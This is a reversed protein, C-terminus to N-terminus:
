IREYLKEDNDEKTNMFAMTAISPLVLLLPYGYRVDAVLPVALLLTMVLFLIPIGAICASYNGNRYAIVMLLIFLWWVAGMSYLIGYIPFITYLKTLIEHMKIVISGKLIPQAELDKNETIGFNVVQGPDMPYWYGKTLDIFADAYEGPYKIGLSIWLKLYEVINDRLYEQNGYTVWAFMPDAGHKQYNERVYSIINIKEILEVEGETLDCDDAIVRGIQQLPVCLKYALQGPEVAVASMVPGKVVFCFALIILTGPVMQRWKKRMFWLAFPWTALFAYFGNHRLMCMFFGSVVYLVLDRRVINRNNRVELHMRFLTIVLILVSMSFLIDKWITVAYILNYPYVAFIVVGTICYKRKLGLEYLTSWVYGISISVLSMQAVTYCSIAIYKSGSILYGIDYFLKFIMTHLWPHHDSYGNIGVAQRYQSLSDPTMIAPYNSLWLPIMCLFLMGSILFFQRYSFKKAEEFLRIKVSRVLIWAVCRYFLCFLGVVTCGYYFVLFLRNTLGGALAEKNGLVYCLTFIGACVTAIISDKKSQVPPLKKLIFCAVLFFIFTFVDTTRIGCANMMAFAIFYSELLIM